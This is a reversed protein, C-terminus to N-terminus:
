VLNSEVLCCWLAPSKECACLAMKRNELDHRNELHVCRWKGIMVSCERDARSICAVNESVVFQANRTSAGSNYSEIVGCRPTWRKNSLSGVFPRANSVFSPFACKKYGVINREGFVSRVDSLLYVSIVLGCRFAFKLSVGHCIQFFGPGYCYDLM